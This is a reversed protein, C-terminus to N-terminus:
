ALAHESKNLDYLGVILNNDEDENGYIIVFRKIVIYVLFMILCHEWIPIKTTKFFIYRLCIKPTILFSKLYKINERVMHCEHLLWSTGNSLTKAQDVPKKKEMNLCYTFNTRRSNSRSNSKITNRRRERDKHNGNHSTQTHQFCAMLYCKCLIFSTCMDTSIINKKQNEPTTILQIQSFQVVM